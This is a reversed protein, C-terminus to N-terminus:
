LFSSLVDLETSATSASDGESASGRDQVAPHRNIVDDVGSDVTPQRCLSLCRCGSSDEGSVNSLDSRGVALLKQLSRSGAAAVQLLTILRATGTM